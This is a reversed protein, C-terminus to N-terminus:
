LSCLGDAQRSEWLSGYSLPFFDDECLGWNEIWAMVLVWLGLRKWEQGPPSATPIKQTANNAIDYCHTVARSLSVASRVRVSGLLLICFKHDWHLPCPPLPFVWMLHNDSIVICPWVEAPCLWVLGCSCQQGAGPCVAVAWVAFSMLKGPSLGTVLHPPSCPVTGAEALFHLIPNDQRCLSQVPVCSFLIHYLCAVDLGQKRKWVCKWGLLFYLLCIWTGPSIFSIHLCKFTESLSCHHSHLVPALQPARNIFKRREWVNISAVSQCYLMNSVGYSQENCKKLLGPPVQM